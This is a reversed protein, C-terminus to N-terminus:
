VTRREVIYPIPALDGEVNDNWDLDVFGSGNVRALGTPAAPATTDAPPPPTPPPDAALPIKFDVPDAGVRVGMYTGDDIITAPPADTITAACPWFMMVFNVVTATDPPNFEVRVLPKGNTDENAGPAEQPYTIDNLDREGSARIVREVGTPRLVDVFCRARPNTPRDDWRMRPLTTDQPGYGSCLFVRKTLKGTAAVNPADIRDWIFFATRDWGPISGRHIVMFHRDYRTIGPPYWDKLAFSCHAFLSTETPTREFAAAMRTWAPEALLDTMNPPIYKSTGVRTAADAPKPWRQGGDNSFKVLGDPSNFTGSPDIYGFASKEALRVWAIQEPSSQWYTDNYISVMNGSLIRNAFTWQAGSKPPTENVKYQTDSNKDHGIRFFLPQGNVVLAWDGADRRQHGGTHHIPASISLSMEDEGWGRKGAVPMDERVCVKVVKDFLFMRKGGMNAIQPRSAARAFDRYWLFFLQRGQSLAQDNIAAIEDALWLAHAGMIDPNLGGIITSYVHQDYVYHSFNRSEAQRHFTHDGRWHWLLWTLYDRFFQEGFWDISIATRAANGCRCVFGMYTDGYANAGWLIGPTFHRWTGLFCDQTQNDVWELGTEFWTRWTTNEADTGDEMIAMLGTLYSFTNDPSHGWGIREVDVTKGRKADVLRNMGARLSARQNTSMYGWLWDYVYGVAIMDNAEETKGSLIRNGLDIAVQIAKNAADTDGTLLWAAALAGLQEPSSSSFSESTKGLANGVWSRIEAWIGSYAGAIRDKYL